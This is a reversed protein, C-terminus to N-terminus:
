IFVEAQGLAGDALSYLNRGIVQGAFSAGASAVGGADHPVLLDGATITVGSSNKVLMDSDNGAKLTHVIEGSAADHGAVGVVHRAKGAVAGAYKTVGLENDNTVLEGRAVAAAGTLRYPVVLTSAEGERRGMFCDQPHGVAPDFFRSGNVLATTAGIARITSVSSIANAKLSPLDPPGATPMAYFVIDQMSGGTFWAAVQAPAGVYDGGGFLGFNVIGSDWEISSIGSLDEPCEDGVIGIRTFETGINEATLGLLWASPAGVGGSGDDYRLICYPSMSLEVDQLRWGALKSSRAVGLAALTANGAQVKVFRIDGQSTGCPPILINYSNGQFSCDHVHHHDGDVAIGCNFGSASLDWAHVRGNCHFGGCTWQPVGVQQGDQSGVLAFGSIQVPAGDQNTIEFAYKGAGPDGGNAFYLQTPAAENGFQGGGGEIMVPRATNSNDLTLGDDLEYRGPPLSGRRVGTASVLADLWAQLQVTQFGGANPVAGFRPDTAYAVEDRVRVVDGGAYIAV